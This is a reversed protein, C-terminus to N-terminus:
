QAMALQPKSLEFERALLEYSKLRSEFDHTITVVVFEDTGYAESLDKLRERVQAPTGAFSRQEISKLVQYDNPTYPYNLAEELSPFPIHRGTLLHLVWLNRTMSLQKAEEETEACLVSIGLSVKPEQLEKSPKFKQRYSEVIKEGGDPSIFHAFSFPQGLDAAYVAGMPSSGLVWVQPLGPGRPMAHIGRYPHEDGFAEEGRADQLFQTLLQVLQPFVAIDYTEPGSQLAASTRPDSGPARGVGLDIRGPYLTELMRFNEAVKLPSYHPLMVGGSGVRITKTESAVKGILVEPTSGAFSQTNHHEALWYREYGLQECAQALRVTEAVAEAANSGHRIPSQDLVSLSVM